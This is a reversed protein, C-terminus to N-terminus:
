VTAGAQLQKLVERGDETDAADWLESFSRNFFELFNQNEPRSIDVIFSPNSHGYAMERRIDPTLWGIELMDDGVRRARLSYPARYCRIELKGDYNDFISNYLTDLTTIMRQQQLGNITAPHKILLRM